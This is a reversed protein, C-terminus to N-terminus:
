RKTKSKKARKREIYRKGFYGILPLLIAAIIFQPNDMLYIWIDRIIQRNKIKVKIYITKDDITKVTGNPAEAGVKIILRAESLNTIPTVSWHWRYDGSSDIEQRSNEHINTINFAKDPDILEIKLAKYININIPVISDKAKIKNLVQKELTIIKTISDKLKLFSKRVSVFVNIDQSINREMAPYYSYAMMAPKSRQSYTIIKISDSHSSSGISKNNEVKKISDYLEKDPDSSKIPSEMEEKSKMEEKAGPGSCTYLFVSAIIFFINVAILILNKRNM